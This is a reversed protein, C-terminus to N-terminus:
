GYRFSRPDAVIVVNLLIHFVVLIQELSAVSGKIVGYQEVATFYTDYICGELSTNTSIIKLFCM